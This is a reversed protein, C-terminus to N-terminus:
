MRTLSSSFCKDTHCGAQRLVTDILCIRENFCSTQRGRYLQPHCPAMSASGGRYLCSQGTKQWDPRLPVSQEASQETRLANYRASTSGGNGNCPAGKWWASHHCPQQRGHARPTGASSRACGRVQRPAPSGFRRVVAVSTGTAHPLAFVRLHRPAHVALAPPPITQECPVRRSCYRPRIVRARGYSPRTLWLRSPKPTAESIGPNGAGAHRM